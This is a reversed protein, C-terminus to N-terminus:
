REARPVAAARYADAEAEAEAESSRHADAVPPAEVRARVGAAAGVAGAEAAQRVAVLVCAIVEDAFAARARARRAFSRRLAAFSAIAGVIGLVVGFALAIPMGQRGTMAAAKAVVAAIGTAFVGVLFGVFAGLVRFGITTQGHSGLTEVFRVSTEGGKSHVTVAPDASRGEPSWTLRNGVASVRGPMRMAASIADAIEEQRGPPVMGSTIEERVVRIVGDPSPAPASTAGDIARRASERSIGLRTLREELEAPTLAEVGGKAPDTAALEAARKVIRQVEDPLIRRERFPSDPM